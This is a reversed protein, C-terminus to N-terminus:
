EGAEAEDQAEEIEEIAEPVSEGDLVDAVPGEAQAELEGSALKELRGDPTVAIWSGDPNPATHADNLRPRVFLLYREGPRYAPAEEAHLGEGGLQYLTFSEPTAGEISEKVELDVLQSPLETPPGLEPNETGLWEPPGERVAEVEVLVIAPSEATLDELSEARYDWEVELSTITADPAGDQANGSASKLALTLAFAAALALVLTILASVPSMTGGVARRVASDTRTSSM